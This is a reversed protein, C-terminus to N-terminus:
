WNSPPDSAPFSQRGWEDVMDDVVSVPEAIRQTATTAMSPLDGTPRGTSASRAIGIEVEAGGTEDSRGTSYSRGAPM